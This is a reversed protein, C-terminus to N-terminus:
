VLAGKAIGRPRNAKWALVEQEDWGVSNPGLAFRKPFIGEREWRYLTRYSVGAIKLVDPQRITRSTPPANVSESSSM